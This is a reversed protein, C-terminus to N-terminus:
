GLIERIRSVAAALADDVGDVKPGGGQAFDAAGGAGGGLLTSAERAVALCDLAM